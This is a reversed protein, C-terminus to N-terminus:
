ATKLIINLYYNNIASCHVANSEAKKGLGKNKSALTCSHLRFVKSSPNETDVLNLDGQYGFYTGECQASPIDICRNRRHDLDQLCRSDM